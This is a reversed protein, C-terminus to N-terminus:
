NKKRGREEAIYHQRKELDHAWMAAGVRNSVTFVLGIIPIGELLAATFGFIRYDWKREQMFVAIEKDTMKKAQFYRQHLFRSTGLAKFWASVVMGVFPYVQFPSLLVRKVVFLGFWGGLWKKILKDQKTELNLNPPTEWEEVYPQWFDPGKGRSAVTQDWARDRAIRINRSLFFRLIYTVQSGLIMITAYTYLSFPVHYGFVTDDRSLGTIRPSNSLFIEIFKKQISFTLAAWISGVIAGRRTAHKCKDWAPKYLNKDTFLRYVGVLVYSPPFQMRLVARKLTPPVHESESHNEFLANQAEPGASPLAM